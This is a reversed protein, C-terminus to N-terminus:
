KVITYSRRSHPSKVPMQCLIDECLSAYVLTKCLSLDIERNKWLVLAMIAFSQYMFNVPATFSTLAGWCLYIKSVM